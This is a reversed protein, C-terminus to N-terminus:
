NLDYVDEFNLLHLQKYELTPYDEYIASPSKLKGAPPLPLNNKPFEIIYDGLRKNSECILWRGKKYCIFCKSRDMYQDSIILSFGLKESKVLRDCKYYGNLRGAFSVQIVTKLNLCHPDYNPIYQGLSLKNLSLTLIISEDYKFIVKIDLENITQLIIGTLKNDPLNRIKFWNLVKAEKDDPIYHENFEEETSITVNVLQGPTCDELTIQKNQPSFIDFFDIYENIILPRHELIEEVTDRPVFKVQPFSYCAPNGNGLKYTGIPYKENDANKELYYINGRFSNESFYYVGDECFLLINNNNRFLYNNNHFGIFTYKGNCNEYSAGIVVISFIHFIEVGTQSVYNFPVNLNFGDLYELTVTEENKAKVIGVQGRYRGFFHDEQDNLYIDNLIMAHEELKVDTTDVLPRSIQYIIYDEELSNDEQLKNILVPRENRVSWPDEILHFEQGIPPLLSNSEKFYYYNWDEITQDHIIWGRLVHIYEIRVAFNDKMKFVPRRNSLGLYDFLGNPNFEGDTGGTVIYTTKSIEELMEDTIPPIDIQEEDELQDNTYDHNQSSDDPKNLSIFQNYAKVADYSNQTLLELADQENISCIEMMLELKSKIQCPPSCYLNNIEACKSWFYNAQSCNEYYQSIPNDLYGIVPFNHQEDEKPFEFTFTNDVTSDEFLEPSLTRVIEMVKDFKSGLKNKWYSLILSIYFQQKLICWVKNASNGYKKFSKNQNIFCNFNDCGSGRPCTEKLCCFCFNFSCNTCKTHICDEDEIMSLEVKCCQCIISIGIKKAFQIQELITTFVRELFIKNGLYPNELSVKIIQKKRAQLYELYKKEDNEYNQNHRKTIEDILMFIDSDKDVSYYNIKIKNALGVPCLLLDTLSRSKLLHKFMKIQLDFIPIICSKCLFHQVTECKCELYSESENVCICCTKVSVAM